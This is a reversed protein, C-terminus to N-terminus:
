RNVVQEQLIGTNRSSNLYYKLSKFESKGEEWKGANFMSSNTNPSCNLGPGAKETCRIGAPNFM